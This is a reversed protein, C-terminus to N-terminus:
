KNAEIMKDIQILVDNYLGHASGFTRIIEQMNARTRYLKGLKVFKKAQEVQKQTREPTIDRYAKNHFFEKCYLQRKITIAIGSEIHQLKM